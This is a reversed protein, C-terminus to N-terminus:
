VFVFPDAETRSVLFEVGDCVASLREALPFLAVRESAFHGVAAVTLGTERAWVADHHRVEGTLYFEAGAGAVTKIVNGCSGTCIAVKRVSRERPGIVAVTPAALRDKLLAVLEAVPQPEPLEGYRGLGTRGAAAKLPYLDFAPEEYSHAARMAAVVANAKRAPVLVELRLEPAQEFKGAQGVTPHSADSGRFTGTGATRFSCESYQGIVGAGAAFVARQVKELDSEPVFVALKVHEEAASPTVPRVGTLGLIEALTDNTGGVACDLNTHAAIHAIGREAAALVARAEYDGRDTLRNVGKLMVPHHTIIAGAGAAAAEEVLGETFDTGLLVRSVERGARGVLLGNNDWSEQLGPPAIGEVAALLESVKM